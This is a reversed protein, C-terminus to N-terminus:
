PEAHAAISVIPAAPPNAGLSGRFPKDSFNFIGGDSAVMLYGVGFGVMGIVPRNLRSGGMSGRFPAAFAFVGGDRAVLWYGVNDADPVLGMVPQNLRTGGMSGHFVADGFSFVGGDSAVMYYGHGTPTAVSGLVPGNLKVAAMDGLFPAAGFPIVRGIDTFLWYGDNNPTASMSVVHEGARLRDHADGFDPADGFRLVGGLSTAIWYGEGSRTPEIDVVNGTNTGGKYPVDGFAYVSGGLGVMWYGSKVLPTVSTSGSANSPAYEPDGSYEAAATHTGAPPAPMTLTAIGTGSVSVPSGVPSGDVSFVVTGTPNSGSLSGSVTAKLVLPAGAIPTAPAISLATSSPVKVITQTLAGTSPKYNMTGLFAAQIVHVGPSLGTGVLSATGATLAVPGGVPAGDISLQVSGAVPQPAVTVTFTVTEGYTAPNEDSTVTTTTDARTVTQTITDDSSEYNATGSFTAVVEHDGTGLTSIADSVAAGDPGVAVPSGLDTGDVTFQVTGSAPHPSVTATFTVADGYVSPHVDAEVVTSTEARAVSQTMAGTSTEYNESGAYAVTITHDGADLGSMVLSASGAAVTVPAGALVGDVSFQVSGTPIEAGALGTVTATFTVSDGFTSPNM